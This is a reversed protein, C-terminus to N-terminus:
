RAKEKQGQPPPSDPLRELGVLKWGAAQRQFYARVPEKWSPHDPHDASIDVRIYAGTAASLGSPASMPSQAGTTQGLPRSEGTGNDFTHWAATYGRPASTVGYHVAANGFSLVGSADLAPDVVPNIKALYARGIKDRRQILVDGLYKEAAPDSYEGTKVIARILEDSFAMVRRAEWFADDARMEVYAATPARPKWTEPDFEQGEFRGISPHKEYDVTQWPSTALGFTFLRRKTAGGDYLYEWGENWEHPGNAGVGFTSGVDQLYHRVVGRGGETVITDLTNGAKMDTLNTWAGFVRLARLERRNEHPVIDNPDDPRTGEYKFGGIVKGSVLRGAAMRYSGDPRRDARELIERVDEQNLPSRKGSPRRTTASPGIAMTEPTMSTLFYEVQNYGLAWFIKTAVVVAGTAGEPNALSDFSVFFTQGNADEATFGPAAGATKERTLTWKAPAPAPGVAPGRVVEEVTLARSGIRNTFWSSDPVEDITNVNGARIGSPAQRPTVFLNYSLDYVLDIDWPQAGSADQTEPERPLPDDSFFKPEATHGVALVGVLLTGVFAVTRRNM